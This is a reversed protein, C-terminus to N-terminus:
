FHCPPELLTQSVAVVLGASHRPFEPSNMAGDEATWVYGIDGVWKANRADTPGRWARWRRPRGAEIGHDYSATWIHWPEPRLTRPCPGVSAHRRQRGSMPRTLWKRFGVPQSKCSGVCCRWQGLMGGIKSSDSGRWKQSAICQTAKKLKEREERLVRNEHRLGENEKVM